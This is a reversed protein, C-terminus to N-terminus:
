KAWRMLMVDVEAAAADNIPPDVEAIAGAYAAVDDDGMALRNSDSTIVDGGM